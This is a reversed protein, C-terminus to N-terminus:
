TSFHGHCNEFAKGSGCPCPENTKANSFISSNTSISDFYGPPPNRDTLILEDINITRLSEDVLSFEFQHYEQLNRARQIIEDRNLIPGNSGILIHQYSNRFLYTHTFAKKFTLVKHFFLQDGYLINALVVGDSSLHRKCLEYFDLTSLRYPGYGIGRFGDMMIIDYRSKPDCQELYERGDQITLRLRQDFELGFFRSAIDKIAPEIDTGEIEV